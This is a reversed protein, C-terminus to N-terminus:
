YFIATVASDCTARPLGDHNSEATPGRQRRKVHRVAPSQRCHYSPLLPVGDMAAVMQYGRVSSLSTEWASAAAAAYPETCTPLCSRCRQTSLPHRRGNPSIEEEGDGLSLQKNSTRTRYFSRHEDFWSKLPQSPRLPAILFHLKFCKFTVFITFSNHLIWLNPMVYETAPIDLLHLM